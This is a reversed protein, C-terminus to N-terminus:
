NPKKLQVLSAFPSAALRGDDHVPAECFEHCPSIPLALLLEDEILPLLPQEASAEIPDASDDELSEDPWPKGIPVLLLRSEIKLSFPLEGLCRQCKLCLEGEVAVVLFPKRDDGVSGRVSWALEGHEDALVDALRHLASVPVVGRMLREGYAFDLSDVLIDSLQKM